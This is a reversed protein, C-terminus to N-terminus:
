GSGDKPKGGARPRATGTELLEVVCAWSGFHKLVTYYSPFRGIKGTGGTRMKHVERATLHGDHEIWLDRLAALITEDTWVKQPGQGKAPGQCYPQDLLECVRRWSGFRAVVASHSPCEGCELRSADKLDRYRLRGGRAAQLARLAALVEADTGKRQAASARQRAEPSWHERHYQARRHYREREVREPAHGKTLKKLQRWAQRDLAEQRRLAQLRPTMLATGVNLGAAIKYEDCTLGHTRLHPANLIQYWGGCIACRIRDSLADYELVGMQGYLGDRPPLAM